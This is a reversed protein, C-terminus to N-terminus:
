SSVVIRIPESVRGMENLDEPDVAYFWATAAYEGPELDTQIRATRIQTGPTLLGSEFFTGGEELLIEARLLCSNKLPSGLDIRVEGTEGGPLEIRNRIRYSLSDTGNESGFAVWPWEYLRQARPDPDAFALIARDALGMRGSAAWLMACGTTMVLLLLLIPVAGKMKKIRRANQRRIGTAPM